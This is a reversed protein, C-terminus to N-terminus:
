SNEGQMDLPYKLEGGPAAGKYTDILEELKSRLQGLRKLEGEFNRM